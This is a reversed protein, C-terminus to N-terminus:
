QLIVRKEERKKEKGNKNKGRKNKLGMVHLFNNFNSDKVKRTSLDSEYVV